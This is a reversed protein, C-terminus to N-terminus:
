PGTARVPGARRADVARGSKIRRRLLDAVRVAEGYDDTEAVLRYRVGDGGTLPEPDDQLIRLVVTYLM